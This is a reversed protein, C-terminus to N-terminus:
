VFLRVLDVRSEAGLKKLLNAQHFKATSPSIDLAKSVEASSRGLLLLHLVERERETLKVRVALSDGRARILKSLLARDIHCVRVRVTDGSVRHATAVNLDDGRGEVVNTVAPVGRELLELAPCNPCPAGRAYYAAYCRQGVTSASDSVSKAWTILGFEKASIDYCLENTFSVDADERMSSAILLALGVGEPLRVPRLEVALRLRHGRPPRVVIEVNCSAKKAARILDRASPAGGPEMVEAWAKGALAAPNTSVLEGFASNACLIRGGPDLIVLPRPERELLFRILPTSVSRTSPNPVNGWSHM